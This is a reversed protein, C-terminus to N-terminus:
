QDQRAARHLRVDLALHMDAHIQLQFCRVLPPPQICLSPPLSPSRSLSRVFPGDVLHICVYMYMYMYMSMYMYIYIYIYIYIYTYTHIYM